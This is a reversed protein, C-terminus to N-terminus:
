TKQAQEIKAWTDRLRVTLNFILQGNESSPDVCFYGEREFQFRDGPMADQLGPEVKCGIVVEL